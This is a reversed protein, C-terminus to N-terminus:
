DNTFDFFEKIDVNLAISIKYITSLSTSIEAREIRGIQNIPINSDNALMEQSLNNKIRIKRVQFGVNKLFIKENNKVNSLQVFFFNKIFM